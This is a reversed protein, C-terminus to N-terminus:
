ETAALTATTRLPSLRPILAMAAACIVVSLAFAIAIRGVHGVGGV